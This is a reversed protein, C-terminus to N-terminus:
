FWAMGRRAMGQRAMGQRAMGHNHINFGEPFAVGPPFGLMVWGAPFFSTIM